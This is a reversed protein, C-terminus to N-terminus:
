ATATKLSALLGELAAPEIPKVIHSDFGAEQSRHKDAEQGWGTQAVLVTNRGWSEQRIRRATEYGDMKPMGIDLLILDPRFVAGINLAEIGSHATQTDNGMIRLLMALSKAADQNDDVVLVRRRGAQVAKPDADESRQLGALSMVVPLRVVFESGMGHGQSKAEVTGEHMEVLKKVLSLGIGLGSHSRDLSRDVQTFIDFVRPLMHAPIGIGTDQVSLIADGDHHAVTLTIRGGQDTYKASNNLLNTVVQALRMADANVYIAESPIDLIFDHCNADILPQSNEIAQQIVKMLSVREKRLEVKGRSIRSLDLLDDILHVMQGLQREMMARAQEVANADHRALKMVQLGNRLPALPNRLEHALTALFEDKRRGAESLDAAVQRLQEESERLAAEAKKRVTIEESLVSFREGARPYIKAEYWRGSSTVENEVQGPCGSSVIRDYEKIWWDDLDPIMELVTRGRAEVVPIGTLREYQPNLELYRIDIASGDSGRIIELEAYGQGMTEFLRRYKEESERLAEEARKRADIDINMGVWKEIKGGADLLPTARVNTWRWGGDPSRLRFEADVPGRVAVAERWRREAYARDDPHIADLWGYGLWEDLTQGTYRRWSPSDAVVVGDADTEWVALAWSGILYRHRAESERLAAEGARRETIDRFYCALGGSAPDPYLSAEMWRGLVPSLGEFHAPRRDRMAALHQAHPEGGEALPFESWLNRGILTERSRGWISEARANVYTFRFDADVAYFADGISELTATIQVRAAESAALVREEALRRTEEARAREAAGWTREAVDDLIQLDAGSWDRPTNSHVGIWATLRGDRLLPVAAWAGVGIAVYPAPDEVFEGKVSTDAVTLTRGSRYADGLNPSFDSLRVREPMPIADREFRATLHCTDGDDELEFYSARMVGLRDALMQMALTQVEVPDTLPRLADSLKLLFTQREENERIVRAAKVQDTTEICQCFFGDVGGSTNFIPTYSYAFHTEEKYGRRQLVLLIDDMYTPIGAYANEVLPTLEGAIESWVQRFPQGLAGPHHGQLVSIYADNYLLLESPGWVTYMAQNSALMLNVLTKLSDPWGEAPGLATKHWPYAKIRGAMESGGVIFTLM